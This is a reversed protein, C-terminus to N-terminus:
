KGSLVKKYLKKDSLVKIAKQFVLDEKNVIQYYETLDFVNLAILAIIRNRIKTKSRQFEKENFSIENKKAIVLFDGFMEESIDFEAIYRDFTPYAQKFLERNKNAYNLSYLNIIGKDLLEQYYNTYVNTDIPIFIDPMIGGGGYVTRKSILTEFKLSDPFHISDKNLLEGHNYREILEHNYDENGNNYPKQISRGSPTYYQAITLRLKSGDPLSLPRQVLGKGFSRRGIIVGRDWDQVAGAVIESASASGENILITLRGNEFYGSINALKEEKLSHKGETFVILKEEGIFHDCIDVATKLYGGGNGRIDLILNEIGHALFNSM